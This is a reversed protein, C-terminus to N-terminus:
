RSGAGGAEELYSRAQATELQWITEAQYPAFGLAENIKLMPANSNANETRIFRAQPREALLKQVMAAKLWKGLGQGRHEPTVGTNLQQVIQPKDPDLMVQTFGVVEGSEGHRVYLSWRERGTALMQQDMQRLQEATVHVEEIELDDFPQQNMVAHIAVVDDIDEEPYAGDWLGMEYGAAPDATWEALLDHDVTELDLQNKRGQLGPRGGIREMFADGAPVRDSTVGLILRRGEGEARAVVPQLLHRGIGRRRWEPAVSLEAQALHQNDETRLVWIRAAGVVGDTIEAGAPTALWRWLDLFDPVNAWSARLREFSLPPDDPLREAQIKVYHHYYARQVAEEASPLDVPHITFQEESM